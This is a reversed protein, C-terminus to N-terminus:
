TLWRSGRGHRKAVTSSSKEWFYIVGYLSAVVVLFIALFGLLFLAFLNLHLGRHLPILIETDSQTIALSVMAIAVIFVIIISRM